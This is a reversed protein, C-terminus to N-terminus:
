WRRSAKGTADPECHQDTAALCGADDAAILGADEIQGSAIATLHVRQRRRDHIFDQSNGRRQKLLEKWSASIKTNRHARMGTRDIKRKKLSRFVEFGAEAILRGRCDIQPFTDTVHLTAVDVSM